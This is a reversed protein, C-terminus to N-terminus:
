LGAVRSHNLALFAWHFIPTSRGFNMEAPQSSRSWITSRTFVLLKGNTLIPTAESAGRAFEDRRRAQEGTHYTWAISLRAVNGGDIELPPTAHAVRIV